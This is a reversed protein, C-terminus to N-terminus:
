QKDEKGGKASFVGAMLLVVGIIGM